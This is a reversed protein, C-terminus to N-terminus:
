QMSSNAYKIEQGDKLFKWGVPVKVERRKKGCKVVQM